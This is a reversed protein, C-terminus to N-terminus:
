LILVDGPALVVSVRAGIEGQLRGVGLLYSAVEADPVWGLLGEAEGAMSDVRFSGGGFPICELQLIADRTFSAVAGRLPVEFAM